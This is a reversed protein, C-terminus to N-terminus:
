RVLEKDLAAIEDDFLRHLQSKERDDLWTAYDM